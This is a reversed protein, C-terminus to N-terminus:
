SKVELNMSKIKYAFVLFSLGSLITIIGAIILGTQPDNMSNLLLIIASIMSLFAAVVRSILIEWRLKKIKSNLALFTFAFEFIGLLLVFYTIIMLFEDLSTPLIAVLIGCIILGISQALHYQYALKNEKNAKSFFYTFIGSIIFFLPILIKATSVGLTDTLLMTIGSLALSIGSFILYKLKYM